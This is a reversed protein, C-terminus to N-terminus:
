DPVGVRSLFSYFRHVLDHVYVSPVVAMRKVGGARLGDYLRQTPVALTRKFDLYLDPLEAQPPEEISPPEFHHYREDQNQKIRRWIDTKIHTGGRLRLSEEQYVDCLLVNAVLGPHEEDLALPADLGQGGGPERFRAKFDQDLDCVATMVIVLHHLTSHVEFSREPIEVPPQAVRHDWVDALIEGQRLAGSGPAVEYILPV